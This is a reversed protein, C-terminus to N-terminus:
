TVTSWAAVTTQLIDGTTYSAHPHLKKLNKVVKLITHGETNSVTTPRQATPKQTAM